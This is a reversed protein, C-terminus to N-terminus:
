EAVQSPCNFFVQGDNGPISDGAQAESMPQPELLMGDAVLARLTTADKVDSVSQDGTLDILSVEADHEPAVTVVKVAWLASYPKDVPDPPDRGPFAAIVNNTDSKDGDANLDTEVGRESVSGLEGSTLGCIPSASGAECDRFLVFIDASPMLTRQADSDPDPAFFGESVTFEYFAVSYQKHWGLLLPVERSPVGPQGIMDGGNGSLLTERFVLLCHVLVRDEGVDGGHDLLLPEVAVRGDEVAREIGLSSKLADPEYDDPVRVIKVLWYPSYGEEGPIRAFVPHGIARDFDIAGDDDFPCRADSDRCFYFVDATFRPAFGSFWYATPAGDFFGNIRRVTRNGDADVVGPWVTRTFDDIVDDIPGLDAEVPDGAGCATVLVLSLCLARM